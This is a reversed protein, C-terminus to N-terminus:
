IEIKKVRKFNKAKKKKSNLEVPFIWIEFKKKVKQCKKEFKVIRFFGFKVFIFKQWKKRILSKPFFVFKSLFLSKAM